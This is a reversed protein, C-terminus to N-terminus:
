AGPTIIKRSPKQSLLLPILIMESWSREAMWSKILEKDGSAKVVRLLEYFEMIEAFLARWVPDPGEGQPEYSLSERWQQFETEAEKEYANLMGHMLEFETRKGTIQKLIAESMRRNGGGMDRVRRHEEWEQILGALNEVDYRSPVYDQKKRKASM